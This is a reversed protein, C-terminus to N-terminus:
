LLGQGPPCPSKRIPPEPLGSGVRHQVHSPPTAPLHGRYPRPHAGQWAHPEGPRGHPGLPTLPPNSDQSQRGPGPKEERIPFPSFKGGPGTTFAPHTDADQSEACRQTSKPACVSPLISLSALSPSAPTLWRTTHSRLSCPLSAPALRQLLLLIKRPTSPLRPRELADWLPPVTAGAEHTLALQTHGTSAGM